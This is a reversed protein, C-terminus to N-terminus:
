ENNFRGYVKNDLPTDEIFKSVDPIIGKTYAQLKVNLKVKVNTM